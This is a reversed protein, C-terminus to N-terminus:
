GEVLRVCRYGHRPNGWNIPQSRVSGNYGVYEAEGPAPVDATWLYIPPQDPAWLPTEKDPTIQCSSSRTHPDLNCGASEGERVLSAVVEATTPMRWAGVWTDSMGTGDEILYGCLCTTAMDNSTAATTSKGALGIPDVGYLALASWSPYGGSETELNWGPGAPAWEMTGETTEMVVAGRRGDDVRTLVIPLWYASVAGFVLVPVTLVVLQDGHRRLFTAPVPSSVRRRGELVFLVGSVAPLLVVVFWTLASGITIEAGRGIQLAIVWAGLSGGVIILAWGGFRPWTVALLGLIWIITMPALYYFPEPFPLGWGEWYLEISGWFAWLALPVVVLVTTAVRLWRRSRLVLYV